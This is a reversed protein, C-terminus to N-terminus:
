AWQRLSATSIEPGAFLRGSGHIDLSLQTCIICDGEREEELGGGGGSRCDSLSNHTM